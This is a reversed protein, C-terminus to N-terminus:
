KVQYRPWQFLDAAYYRQALALSGPDYLALWDDPRGSQTRHPLEGLGPAHAQVTRWDEDITELHGLFDLQKGRLDKDLIMAQPAYHRNPEGKHTVMWRIFEPFTMSPSLRACFERSRNTRVMHYYLSVPRKLPHCVVSFVWNVPAPKQWHRHHHVASLKEPPEIGDALLLAAKISTCAAKEISIYEIGSSHSIYRRGV